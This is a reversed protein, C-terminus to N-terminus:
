CQTLSQVVKEDEIFKYLLLKFQEFDIRNNPSLGMELLIFELPNDDDAIEGFTGSSLM